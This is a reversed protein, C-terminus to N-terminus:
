RPGDRNPHLAARFDYHDEMFRGWLIRRKGSAYQRGESLERVRFEIGQAIRGNPRALARTSVYAIRRIDLAVFAYVDAAKTSVSRTTGRGRRLGFRYFPPRKGKTSPPQVPARTARVQVRILRGEHDALVDYPLTGGAPFAGVGQLLLDALVLYEGARGQESEASVGDM